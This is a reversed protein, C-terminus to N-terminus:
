PRCDKTQPFYCTGAQDVAAGPAECIGDGGCDESRHCPICGSDVSAPENDVSGGCAALLVLLVISVSKM